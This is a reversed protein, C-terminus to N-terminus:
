PGGELGKRVRHSLKAPSQLYTNVTRISSRTVGVFKRSGTIVSDHTGVENTSSAAKIGM